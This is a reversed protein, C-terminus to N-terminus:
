ACAILEERITDHGIIFGCTLFASIVAGLIGPAVVSQGALFLGPIRTAPIPNFQDVTHAMGYMTGTSTHMYDRLTLPTAGDVFRVDSFEPAGAILAERMARLRERKFKKYGEPRKGTHSDAWAAVSHMYGPAIVIIGRISKQDPTSSAAVYFPGQEPRRGPNFFTQVDAERCVFLNRREVSPIPTDSIGFLMYASPTDHLAQLRHRYAPRFGNEPVIDLLISPHASCIVQRTQIVTANELEVSKIKKEPSLHLHKVGNGCLLDVGAKQMALEYAHVLARGGGKIGNVSQYYSGVIKAHNSFPANAPSVGYLLCHMSLISILLPNDQMNSLYAALTANDPVSAMEQRSFTRELNLFPSTNFNEHVRNLYTRIHESHAPFSRILYNTLQEYGYPLDFEHNEDVFRIRDFGKPDYSEYPLNEIGLSRFYRDLIEGPGACGLYHLGTDFYVGQRTFGQLTPAPKHFKEVLAVSYGHRALLLATTMGSIGAGIVVFDKQM